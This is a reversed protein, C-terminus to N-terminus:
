NFSTNGVKQEAYEPTVSIKKQHAKHHKMEIERQRSNCGAHVELHSFM